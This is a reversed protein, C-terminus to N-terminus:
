KAKKYAKEVREHVVVPEEYYTDKVSVTGTKSAPNMVIIDLNHLAQTFRIDPFKKLYSQLRKMILKNYAVRQDKLPDGSAPPTRMYKVFSDVVKKIADSTENNM